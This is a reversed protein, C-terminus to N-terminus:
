ESHSLDRVKGEWVQGLWAYHKGYVVVISRVVVAPLGKKLMKNFLINYKFMDFAESCDLLTMIPQTGDRMFHSAVEKVM